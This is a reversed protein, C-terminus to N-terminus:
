SIGHKQLKRGNTQIDQRTIGLAKAHHFVEALDGRVTAEGGSYVIRNVGDQSVIREVEELLTQTDRDGLGKDWSATCFLCDNNCAYGVNIDAYKARLAIQANMRRIKIASEWSMNAHM